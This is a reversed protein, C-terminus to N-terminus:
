QGHTARGSTLWRSMWWAIYAGPIEVTAGAPYHRGDRSYPRTVRVNIPGRPM